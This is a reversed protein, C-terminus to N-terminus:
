FRGKHGRVRNLAHKHRSEHLYQRACPRSLNLAPSLAFANPPYPRALVSDCPACLLAAPLQSTCCLARTVTHCKCLSPAGEASACEPAVSHTTHAGRAAQTDKLAQPCHMPTLSSGRHVSAFRSLLALRRLIPSAPAPSASPPAPSACQMPNVMVRKAEHEEELKVAYAHFGNSGCDEVVSAMTSGRIQCCVSPRKKPTHTNAKRLCASLLPRFELECCSCQRCQLM